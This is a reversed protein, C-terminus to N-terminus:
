EQMLSRYEFRRLTRDKFPLERFPNYPRIAQLTVRYRICHGSPLQTTMAHLELQTQGAFRPLPGEAGDMLVRLLQRRARLPQDRVDTGNLWLIDFVFVVIDATSRRHFANQLANFDPTGAANLVVVEGDLWADDVPLADIAKRLKPMRDTWDHGNRTILKASGDEIRVLMRYGDYKIEYSWDGDAPARSVLTALQPEIVSPMAGPPDEVVRRAPKRPTSWRGPM